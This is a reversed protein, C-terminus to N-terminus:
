NVPYLVCAPVGGTMIDEDGFGRARDEESLTERGVEGYWTTEAQYRANDDAGSLPSYGNGEADKQMIVEREPDMKSLIAILEGVKM